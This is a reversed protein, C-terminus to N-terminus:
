EGKVKSEDDLHFNTKNFVKFMTIQFMKVLLIVDKDQLFM